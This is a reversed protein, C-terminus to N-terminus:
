YSPHILHLLLYLLSHFDPPRHNIIQVCYSIVWLKCRNIIFDIIILWTATTLLNYHKLCTVESVMIAKSSGHGGPCHQHPTHRGLLPAHTNQGLVIGHQRRFRCVHFSHEIFRKLKFIYCTSFKEPPLTPKPNLLKATNKEQQISISQTKQHM